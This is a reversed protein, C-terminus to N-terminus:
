TGPFVPKWTARTSTWTEFSFGSANGWLSGEDGYWDGLLVLNLSDRRSWSM